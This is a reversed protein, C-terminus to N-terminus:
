VFEKLRRSTKKTSSNGTLTLNKLGDKRMQSKRIRIILKRTTGIIMLVKNKVNDTWLIRLM